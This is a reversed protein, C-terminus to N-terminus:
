AILAADIREVRAPLPISLGTLALLPVPLCVGLVAFIREWRGGHVQARDSPRAGHARAPSMAIESAPTM